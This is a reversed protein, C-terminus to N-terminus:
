FSNMILAQHRTLSKVQSSRQPILMQCKVPSSRESMCLRVRKYFYSSASQPSQHKKKLYWSNFTKKKRKCLLDFRCYCSLWIDPLLAHCVQSEWMDKLWSCRKRSVEGAEAGRHIPIKLKVKMYTSSILNHLSETASSFVQKFSNWKVLKM